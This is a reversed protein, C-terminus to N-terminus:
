PYQSKLILEGAGDLIEWYFNSNKAKELILPQITNKILFQINILLGWKGNTNTELVSYFYQDSNIQTKQRQFSSKPLQNQSLLKMERIGPFSLLYETNQESKSISDKINYINGLLQRVKENNSNNCASIIVDSHSLILSYYSNGIEWRSKQIENLLIRINKLASLTDSDNLYISSIEILAVAWLPIKNQISVSPHNDWIFEYTKIAEENLGLKRQNRAIANLIEAKM